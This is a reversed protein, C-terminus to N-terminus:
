TTVGASVAAADHSNIRSFLWDVFGQQERRQENSLESWRPLAALIAKPESAFLFRDGAQM